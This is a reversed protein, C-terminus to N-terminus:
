PAIVYAITKGASYGGGPQAYGPINPVSTAAIVPATTTSTATGTTSVPAPAPTATTPPAPAPPTVVPTTPAPTPPPTPYIQALAWSSFTVSLFIGFAAKTLLFKFMSLDG